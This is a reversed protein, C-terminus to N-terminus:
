SGPGTKGEQYDPRNIPKGLVPNVAKKGWADRTREYKEKSVRPLKADTAPDGGSGLIHDPEGAAARQVRQLAERAQKTARRAANIDYGPAPETGVAAPGRSKAAAGGGHKGSKVHMYDMLVQM